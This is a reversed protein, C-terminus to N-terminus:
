EVEIKRKNEKKVPVHIKLIGAEYRANISEFSTKEPLAWTMKYQRSVTTAMGKFERTATVTLNQGLTSVDIDSRSLGPLEVTVEYGGDINSVFSNAIWENEISKPDYISFMNDLMDYSKILGFM